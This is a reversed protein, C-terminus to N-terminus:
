PRELLEQLRHVCYQSPRWEHVVLLMRPCDDTFTVSPVQRNPSASYIVTM